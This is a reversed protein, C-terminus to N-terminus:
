PQSRKPIAMRERVHRCCYLHGCRERSGFFFSHALMRFRQATHEARLVLMRFHREAGCAADHQSVYRDQLTRALGLDTEHLRQM